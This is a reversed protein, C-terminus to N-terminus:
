YNVYFGRELVFGPVNLPFVAAVVPRYLKRRDNHPDFCRRLKEMNAAAAM